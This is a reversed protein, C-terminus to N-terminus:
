RQGGHSRPVVEVTIQQDPVLSGAQRSQGPRKFLLSDAGRLSDLRAEVRLTVRVKRIRLLDADYRAESSSDPCWPGDTLMPSGLSQLRGADDDLAALRPSQRGDAAAIVCNEGPGWSDRPDDEGLLPPPPGYSMREGRPGPLSRIRPPQPDGFYEFAFTVVHDVQPLDSQNGDYLALQSGDLGTSPRLYWVTASVPV